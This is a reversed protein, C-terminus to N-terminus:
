RNFFYRRMSINLMLGIALLNAVASSGGYSVFPLPIGVVPLLGTVMGINIVIQWFFITVVGIVALRGFRDKAGYAINLGWFLFLGFLILMATVGIFGWEEALVSFAFDTHHEPIFHLQSQTGHQFGKGWMGGSGVAIKSQIVHYGSGLPDKEPDFFTLVRKQQYPKLHGWGFYVVPVATVTLFALVQWRIGNFLLVCGAIACILLATGLDPQRMILLAPAATLLAPILLDKFGYPEAGARRSCYHALTIVIVIKMLESPQLRLPGIVLWRVSGGGSKGIILVAALAALCLFYIIYALSDIKNYPIFVVVLMAGLGLLLWYIQKLYIGSESTASYLNVVGAAAILLTLILLVWDFSGLLRRDFSIM